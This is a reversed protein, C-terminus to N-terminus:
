YMPTLSATFNLQAGLDHCHADVRIARINDPLSNISAVLAAQWEPPVFATALIQEVIEDRPGKLGELSWGRRPNIESDAM